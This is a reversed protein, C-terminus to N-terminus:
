KGAVPVITIKAAAGQLTVVLGNGTKGPNVQTTTAQVVAKGDTGPQGQVELSSAVLESKITVPISEPVKVVAKAAIVNVPIQLDGGPATGADLGTLDISADAMAVSLGDQAASATAPAWSQHAMSTWPAHLPVMSLLGAFVLAAAAFTGVGDATRGRLGSAMIALGATIAAAAAAAPAQYGHLDLVGSANLILVLAGVMVALGLSLLSAAAGLRPRAHLAVPGPAGLPGTWAATRSDLPEAPHDGSGPRGAPFPVPGYPGAAPAPVHDQSHGAVGPAAPAGFYQQRPPRGTASRGEKGRNIAWVVCCVIAAVWLVPWPFWGGHWNWAVSQGPGALGFFTAIAAGTMGTSWHGRAVQEVHIRGDPEPLLAWAVGYALLGIGFILTLVVALGRVIVPDIGWKDALGSCVGGVWRSSGRRVGLSRLWVFPRASRQPEPGPGFTPENPPPQQRDHGAESGAAPGPKDNPAPEPAPGPQQDEHSDNM